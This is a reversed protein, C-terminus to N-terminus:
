ASAGGDSPEPGLSPGTRLSPETGQSTQPEEKSQPEPSAAPTPDHESVPTTSASPDATPDPAAPPLTEPAPVTPAPTAETLPESPEIRMSAVLDMAAELLGGFPVGPFSEIAIVVVEGEVDVIIFRSQQGPVQVFEGDEMPLAWVLLLSLSCAEVVPTAVDLSIGGYGDVDVAEPPGAVLFPNGAIIETLRQVTPEVQTLSTPDCSDVFAEGDFRTVTVVTGPQEVLELTFIPADSGVGVRWGDELRFEITPGLADSAYRGPELETGPVPLVDADSEQASLSVPLGVVAAVLVLIAAIRKM